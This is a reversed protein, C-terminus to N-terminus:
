ENSNEGTKEATLAATGIGAIELILRTVDGIALVQHREGHFVIIQNRANDLGILILHPSTFLWQNLLNLDTESTDYLVIGNDVDPPSVHLIQDPSIHLIHFAPHDRLGAELGAMLLSNGFITIMKRKKM